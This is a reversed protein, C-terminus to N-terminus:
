RRPWGFPAAGSSREAAPTLPPIRGLVPIEPPLEWEGLIVNNQFERGFSWAAALLLALLSGAVTWLPRNPSIPKTPPRAMDLLVFREAKQRREMETALGAALKKDLLSQYYARSIEYDRTLSALEQERLPLKEISSQVAALRSLTQQREQTLSSMQEEM